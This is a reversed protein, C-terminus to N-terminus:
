SLDRVVEAQLDPRSLPGDEVEIVRAEPLLERVRPIAGSQWADGEHWVVALRDGLARLEEIPSERALWSEIRV